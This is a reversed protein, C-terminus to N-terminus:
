IDLNEKSNDSDFLRSNKYFSDFVSVDLPETGYWDKSSEISYGFTMGKEPQYEFIIYDSVRGNIIALHQWEEFTTKNHFFDQLGLDSMFNYFENFEKKDKVIISNIGGFFDLWEGNERKMYKDSGEKWIQM